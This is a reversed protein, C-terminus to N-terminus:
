DYRGFLDYLLAFDPAPTPQLRDSGGALVRACRLYEPQMAGQWHLAFQTDRGVPRGTKDEVRLTHEELTLLPESRTVQRQWFVLYDADAPRNYQLEAWRARRLKLQRTVAVPVTLEPDASNFVVAPPTAVTVRAPTDAAVARCRAQLEPSLRALMKEKEAALTKNREGIESFVKSGQRYVMFPGCAALAAAMTLMVGARWMRRMAM